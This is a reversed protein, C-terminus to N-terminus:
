FPNPFNGHFAWVEAAHPRPPSPICRAGTEVADWPGPVEEPAILRVINEGSGLPLRSTSEIRYSRWSLGINVSDGVTFFTTSDTESQHAPILGLRYLGPFLTRDRIEIVGASDTVGLVNSALHDSAQFALVSDEFLVENTGPDSCRLRCRLARDHSGPAYWFTEHHGRLTAFNEYALSVLRGEVDFVEIRTACTRDIDFSFWTQRTGASWRLTEQSIPNWASVYVGPAPYGTVTRVEVRLLFGPSEVPPIPDGDCALLVAACPGAMWARRLPHPRRRFM